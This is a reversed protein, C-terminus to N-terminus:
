KLDASSTPLKAFLTEIEKGTVWEGNIYNSPFEARDYGILALLLIKCERLTLTLTINPISM